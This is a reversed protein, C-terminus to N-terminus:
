TTPIELFTITKIDDRWDHSIAIPYLSSGDLTVKKLPTINKVNTLNALLDATIKRRAVQWYNTVRDALVQEPHLNQAGYVATQMFTGDPNILLGYGYVLDNDSAYICDANWEDRVNNQNKSTYEMESPLDQKEYIRMAGPRANDKYYEIHFDSLEFSKEGDINPLDDSGLFEIFLLGEADPTPIAYIRSGATAAAYFKSDTNGITFKATSEIAGWTKTDSNYWVATNRTKGVGLKIYMNYVGPAHGENLEEQLKETRRYTDGHLVIYGGAYIHHYVTTLTAYASYNYSKKIRIMPIAETPQENTGYIQGLNFSAKGDVATGVLLPRSFTLLDNTYNVMKGDQSYTESSVGQDAMLEELKEDFEVVNEDAQNANVKVKSKNHGRQRYDDNDTTAFESGDLTVTDFSMISSADTGSALADLQARTLVAWTPMDLDDARTLYLNKGDTRATWGWFKCIDQLIEYLNYKAEFEGDNDELFNQWDVRKLLWRRADVGGQIAIKNIHVVGAASLVHDTVVGGSLVDIENVCERLVYALNQITKNTSDIDSGQLVSLGCQIPYEREQPNGYLVGGFNQAQMFGQWDIVTSGSAVHTLTVPRDTDTTPVLTKWNFTNGNADKGDDVIRLYGTQTRIDCFMDEDNDEETSFPQAGGNLVIANGTYDADYINITYTIGSRLSVFPIKWHINM